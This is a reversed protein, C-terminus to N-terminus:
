TVIDMKHLNHTGKLSNINCLTISIAISHELASTMTSLAVGSGAVGEGARGGTEVGAM